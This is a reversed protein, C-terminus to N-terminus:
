WALELPDVQVRVPVLKRSSRAAQLQQLARTLAAGRRRPVRIVVRFEGDGLQVPGLVEAERPLEIGSLAEAIVEPSATLTALRSAPPLHASRREDLCRSAFGVPDWRVLAQLTPSTPEGVAIIRGGHAGARVLAAVNLWRRLAEENVRLGPRALTLWTDLLVAAPYGGEAVPEAGPTAIVIAPDRDVRTVM